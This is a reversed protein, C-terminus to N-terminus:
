TLHIKMNNPTNLWTGCPFHYKTYTYLPLKFFNSSFVNTYCWDQLYDMEPFRLMSNEQRSLIHVGSDYVVPLPLFYCKLTATLGLTASSYNIHVSLETSCFKTLIVMKLIHSVNLNIYPM